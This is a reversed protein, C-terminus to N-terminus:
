HNKSTRLEKVREILMDELEDMSRRELLMDWHSRQPASSDNPLPQSETTSSKGCHPCDWTAPITIDAAFVRVFEHDSECIYTVEVRDALETNPVIHV